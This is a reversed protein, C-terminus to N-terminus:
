NRAALHTDQDTTSLAAKALLTRWEQHARTAATSHRATNAYLVWNCFQVQQVQPSGARQVSIRSFETLEPLNARYGAEVKKFVTTPGLRICPWRHSVSQYIKLVCLNLLIYPFLLSKSDRDFFTPISFNEVNKRMKVKYYFHITLHIMFNLAWTISM